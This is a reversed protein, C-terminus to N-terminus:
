FGGSIRALVDGGLWTEKQLDRHVRVFGGVELRLNASHLYRWRVGPGTAM